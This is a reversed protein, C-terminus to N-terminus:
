GNEETESGTSLLIVETIICQEYCFPESLVFTSSIFYVLLCSWITMQSYQLHSLSGSPPRSWTMHYSQVSQEKRQGARSCFGVHDRQEPGQNTDNIAPGHLWNDEVSGLPVLIVVGIAKPGRWGWKQGSILTIATVVFPALCKPISMCGILTLLTIAVFGTNWHLSKQDQTSTQTPHLLGRHDPMSWQTQKLM